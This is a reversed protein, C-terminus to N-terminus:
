NENLVILAEVTEHSKIDALFSEAEERGGFSGLRIRYWRGRGPIDAITMYAPYGKGKWLDVIANAETLEPYSGIQIAYKSAEVDKVRVVGNPSQEQPATLTEPPTASAIEPAAEQAPKPAVAEPQNSIVIVKDDTLKKGSVDTGLMKAIRERLEPTKAKDILEKAMEAVEPDSTTPVSPLEALKEDVTQEVAALSPRRSLGLFDRGYRAGLYFVFFLTFVELMLLAFFQGFTFRCFFSESEDRELHDHSEYDTM